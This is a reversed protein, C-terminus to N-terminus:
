ILLTCVYFYLVAFSTLPVYLYISSQNSRSGYCDVFSQQCQWLLRMQWLMTLPSTMHVSYDACCKYVVIETINLEQETSVPTLM